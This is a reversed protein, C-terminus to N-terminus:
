SRGLRPINLKLYFFAKTELLHLPHIHKRVCMVNLTNRHQLLTNLIKVEFFGKWHKKLTNLHLLDKLPWTRM